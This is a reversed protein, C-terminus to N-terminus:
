AKAKFYKQKWIRAGKLEKQDIKEKKKKYGNTCIVMKGADLFYFVRLGDWTRLYYLGDEIQKSQTLNTILGHNKMRDLYRQFRAMEGVAVNELFELLECTGNEELVYVSFAIGQKVKVAVLPM